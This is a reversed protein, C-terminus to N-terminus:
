RPMIHVWPSFHAGAYAPIVKQNLQGPFFAQFMSAISAWVRPLWLQMRGSYRETNPLEPFLISTSDPIGSVIAVRAGLELPVSDPIWYRSDPIRLTSELNWSLPDQIEKGLAVSSCPELVMLLSSLRVMSFQYFVCNIWTVRSIRNPFSHM